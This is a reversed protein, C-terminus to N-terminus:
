FNVKNAWERVAKEQAMRICDANKDCRFEGTKLTFVARPPTLRWVVVSYFASLIAFCVFVRVVVGSKLDTCM